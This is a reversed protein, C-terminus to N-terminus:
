SSYSYSNYRGRSMKWLTPFPSPNVNLHFLLNLYV